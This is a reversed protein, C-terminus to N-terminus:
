IGYEKVIDSFKNDSSITNGKKEIRDCYKRLTRSGSEFMGYDPAVYKYFRANERNYVLKQRPTSFIDEAIDVMVKRTRNDIGSAPKTCYGVACQKTTFVTLFACKRFDPDLGADDQAATIVTIFNHRNKYILTKFIEERQLKKLHEPCDDFIIMINPNIDHYKICFIEEETLDEIKLLQRRYYKLGTKYIKQYKVKFIEDEQRKKEELIAANDDFNNELNKIAANYVLDLKRLKDSFKPINVKDFISKMISPDNADKYFKIMVQQRDKIRTLIEKTPREYIMCSPINLEKSYTGNLTDTPCFVFILPIKKRLAYVISAICKTKGTKPAGFLNIVKNYLLEETFYIDEIEYDM